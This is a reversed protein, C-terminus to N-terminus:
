GIWQSERVGQKIGTSFSYSGSVKRSLFVFKEGTM